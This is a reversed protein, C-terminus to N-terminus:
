KAALLKRARAVAAEARKRREAETEGGESTRAAREVERVGALRLVEHGWLRVPSNRHAKPLLGAPLAHAQVTDPHQGLLRAAVALRYVGHDRVDALTEPAATDTAAPM